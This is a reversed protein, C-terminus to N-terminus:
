HKKGVKILKTGEPIYDINEPKEYFQKRDFQEVDSTNVAFPKLCLHCRFQQSKEDVIRDFIATGECFPCNLTDTM